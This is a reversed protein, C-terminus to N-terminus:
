ERIAISGQIAQEHMGNPNIIEGVEEKGFGLWQVVQQFKRDGSKDMETRSTKRM